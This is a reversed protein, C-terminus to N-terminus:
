TALATEIHEHNTGMGWSNKHTITKNLWQQNDEKPYDSRYHGGRSETRKLAAETILKSIILMFIRTMEELSYSGIDNIQDIEFTDLWAKQKKLNVENRVIGVREMMSDKIQQIDPLVVKDELLYRRIPATEHM